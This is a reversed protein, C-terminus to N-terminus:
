WSKVDGEDDWEGVGLCGELLYARVVEGQERCHLVSRFNAMKLWRRTRDVYM